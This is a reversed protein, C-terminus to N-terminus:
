PNQKPWSRVQSRGNYTLRYKAPNGKIPMDVFFHPEVKERRKSKRRHLQVYAVEEATQFKQRHIVAGNRDLLEVTLKGTPENTNKNRVRAITDQFVEVQGKQNITGGFLLSQRTGNNARSGAQSKAQALCDSPALLALTVVWSLTAFQSFLKM